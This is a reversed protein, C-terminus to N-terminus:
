RPRDISQSILSSSPEQRSRRLMVWVLLLGITLLLFGLAIVKFQTGGSTAPNALAEAPLPVSPSNLVSVAPKEPEAMAPTAPPTAKAEDRAFAKQTSPASGSPESSPAPQKTDSKTSTDSPAAPTIPSHSPPSSPQVAAMTEVTRTAAHEPAPAPPQQSSVVPAVATEKALNTPPVAVKATVNTAPPPSSAASQTTLPAPTAAPVAAVKQPTTTKVTPVPANTAALVVNTPPAAPVVKTSRSMIISPGRKPKPPAPQNTVPAVAVVANTPAVPEPLATHPIAIVGPYNITYDFVAGNRAALVTVFPVHAAKLQRSYKKQLANIEKDFPTGQITGSGDFFLIVTLRQSHQILQNLVPLVKELHAQHEFRRTRLFVEMETMVSYKENPAWSQMPFDTSLKDNYTWVGITDGHRLEGNLDTAMLDIVGQVIANSEGRMARATDILFLFRNEPQSPPNAGHCVGCAILAALIVIGLIPFRRM